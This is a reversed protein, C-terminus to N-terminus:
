NRPAPPMRTAPPAADPSAASSPAVSRATLNAAVREMLKSPERVGRLIQVAKTVVADSRVLRRNAGTLGFAQRAVEDGIVRDIAEHADDFTSRSVALSKATMARYLGDRMEPTVAFEPDKVTGRRVLEAALTTLALRFLAVRSGVANVWVREVRPMTSDGALVDPVIGGGGRVTRGADTRYTPRTTDASAGDPSRVVHPRNISRGSPTYWLANTIKLAAGGDLPVVVQASGKGYSPRGIVVARDHDQLAGAVIEAASATGPDLLVVIPLTPWHGTARASHISTTGPSRGRTAVIKQGERLFLEAVAVGQALLGGPNGRLDLVLSVAGSSVLSDVAARVELATSDSFSALSLYGVGDALVMPRQVSNVHIESRVLTFPIRVGGNREVVLKVTGGVPGRITNRAEEITWGKTPQGDVEVIRDGAALGAREAPSGSRPATVVIGGERLDLQLGVGHYNGTTSEQLRKLREASLYSTGPDGLEEVLGAAAKRYMGDPSVTDVWSEQVRRMLADLLRRGQTASLHAESASPSALGRRVLWGGGLLAASLLATATFFRARTM